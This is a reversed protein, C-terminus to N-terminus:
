CMKKEAVITKVFFLEREEVNIRVYNIGPKTAQM